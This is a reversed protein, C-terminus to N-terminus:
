PQHLSAPVCPRPGHCACHQAAAAKVSCLRQLPSCPRSTICVYNMIYYLVRLCVLSETWNQQGQLRRTTTQQNQGHWRDRPAFPIIRPRSLLRFALSLAWDSRWRVVLKICVQARLRRKTTRLNQKHGRSNGFDKVCVRALDVVRATVYCEEMFPKM